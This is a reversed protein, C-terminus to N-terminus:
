SPNQGWKNVDHLSGHFSHRRALSRMKSVGAATSGHVFLLQSQM